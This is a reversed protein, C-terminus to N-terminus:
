VFMYCLVGGDKEPCIPETFNKNGFKRAVMACVRRYIAMAQLPKRFLRSVTVSPQMYIAM